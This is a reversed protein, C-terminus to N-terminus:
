VVAATKIGALIARSALPVEILYLKPWPGLGLSEASERLPLPIDHLGTYTNRVIPLLSYLFLAIIAPLPGIHRVLVLLLVLLALAPITQVVGIAALVVQGLRPRRAALVGLPIAEAIALALSVVVLMLHQRTRLLVREALTEDTAVIPMGKSQ